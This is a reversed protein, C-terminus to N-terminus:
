PRARHVRRATNTLIELSRRLKDRPLWKTLFDSYNEVDHIHYISAVNRKIRGRFSVYRRILHKSASPTGIGGAIRSDASNDTGIPIPRPMPRGMARLIEQLYEVLEGAKATGIAEVAFSSDFTTGRITKCTHYVAAHAM